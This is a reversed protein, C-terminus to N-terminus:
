LSSRSPTRVSCASKTASRSCPLPEDGKPPHAPLANAQVYVDFDGYTVKYQQILIGDLAVWKPPKNDTDITFQLGEGPKADPGPRADTDKAQTEPAQALQDAQRQAWWECGALASTAALLWGVRAATRMWQPAAMRRRLM